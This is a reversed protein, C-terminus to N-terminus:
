LLIIDIYWVEQFILIASSWYYYLDLTNSIEDCRFTENVINSKDKGCWVFWVRYPIWAMANFYIPTRNVIFLSRLIVYLEVQFIPCFSFVSIPQLFLFYAPFIHCRCCLKGRCFSRVNVRSYSNPEREESLYLALNSDLFLSTRLFCSSLKLLHMLFTKYWVIRLHRSWSAM